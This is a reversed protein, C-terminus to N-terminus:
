VFKRRGKQTRGRRRKKHRRTPELAYFTRPKVKRKGGAQGNQLNRIATQVEHVNQEAELVLRHAEVAQESKDFETKDEASERMLNYSHQAAQLQQNARVLGLNLDKFTNKKVQPMNQNIFNFAEKNIKAQKNFNEQSMSEKLTKRAASTAASATSAIAGPARYLGKAVAYPVTAVTTALALPAAKAAGYAAKSTAVANKKINEPKLANYTASAASSVAGTTANYASTLAQQTENYHGSIGSALSAESPAPGAPPAPSAGSPPPPPAGSPPPPPPGSPLPPGSPPAGSPPPGSPPAGSPPAGSPPPGSPLPPVSPPAVVSAEPLTSAKETSVPTAVQLAQAVHTDQPPHSADLAHSAAAEHPASVPSSAAPKDKGTVAANITNLKDRMAPAHEAVKGLASSAKDMMGSISPMKTLQVGQRPMAIQDRVKNLIGVAREPTDNVAVEEMLEEESKLIKKAIFATIYNKLGSAVMKRVDENAITGEAIATLFNALEGELQFIGSLANVVTPGEEATAWAHQMQAEVPAKIQTLAAFGPFPHKNAEAFKEKGENLKAKKEKYKADQLEDSEPQTLISDKLGDTKKPANADPNTTTTNANTNAKADGESRKRKVVYANLVNQIESQNTMTIGDPAVAVLEKLLSVSDATVKPDPHESFTYNDLVREVEGLKARGGLEYALKGVQDTTLVM